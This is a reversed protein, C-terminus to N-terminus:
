TRRFRAALKRLGRRTMEVPLWRMRQVGFSYQLNRPFWLLRTLIPAGKQDLWIHRLSRLYVFADAHSNDPRPRYLRRKGRSVRRSQLAAIVQHPVAAHFTEVLYALAEGVPYALRRAEVEAVFVEWALDRGRAKLVALADGMWRVATTDISRTGHVIVHLLQHEPRLVRVQVGDLSALEAEDWFRRDAGADRSDWLAWWHVDCGSEAKHFVVAHRFAVARRDVPADPRWGMAELLSAAALAQEPRVLLDFDSMPRVKADCYGAAVLAAGKLVLTDLGHSALLHITAAAEHLLLRTRVWTSRAMQKVVPAIEAEPVGGDLLNRYVPPLLRLEVPDLAGLDRGHSWEMWAATAHEGDGFAAVLLLEDPIM